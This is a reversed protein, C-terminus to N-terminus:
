DLVKEQIVQIQNEQNRNVSIWLGLIWYLRDPNLKAITTSTGGKSQTLILQEQDPPVCNGHNDELDM